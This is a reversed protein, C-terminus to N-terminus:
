NQTSTIIEYLLMGLKLSVYIHFDYFIELVEIQPVKIELGILM